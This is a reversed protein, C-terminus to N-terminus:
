RAYISDQPLKGGIMNPNEKQLIKYYQQFNEQETQINKWGINARKLIDRWLEESFDFGHKALVERRRPSNHLFNTSEQLAQNLDGRLKSDKLLEKKVVVVAQPFGTTEPFHKKWEEGMSFLVKSEVNKSIAQSVMPEVLFVFSDKDQLYMQLAEIGSSLYQIEMEKELGNYELVTQLIIDPTLGKGFSYLKKGKLDKMNTIPNRGLIYFSSSTLTGLIKYEGQKEYLQAALNSPIVAIDPVEKMMEVMMRDNAKPLLYTLPKGAIEKKEEMMYALAVTPLGNPVLMIYGKALAILSTFLFLLVVAYKKM